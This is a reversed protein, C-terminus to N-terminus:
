PKTSTEWSPSIAPELPHTEPAQPPPESPKEGLPPFRYQAAEAVKRVRENISRIRTKLVDRTPTRNLDNLLMGFLFEIEATAKEGELERCARELEPEWRETYIQEALLRAAEPQKQNFLTEVEDLGNIVLEAEEQWSHAQPATIPQETPACGLVWFLWLM